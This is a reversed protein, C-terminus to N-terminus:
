LLLLSSCFKLVFVQHVDQPICTILSNHHRVVTNRYFNSQRDQQWLRFRIEQGYLTVFCSSVCPMASANLHELWHRYELQTQTQRPHVTSFLGQRDGHAGLFHTELPPQSYFGSNRKQMHATSGRKCPSHFFSPRHWCKMGCHPVAASQMLPLWRAVWPSQNGCRALKVVACATEKRALDRCLFQVASPTPTTFSRVTGRM